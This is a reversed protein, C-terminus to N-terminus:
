KIRIGEEDEVSQGDDAEEFEEVEETQDEDEEVEQYDNYANPYEEYDEYDSLYYYFPSETSGSTDDEDGQRCFICVFQYM